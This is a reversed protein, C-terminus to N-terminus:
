KKVMKKTMVLKGDTLLSYTYIGSELNQGYVTLMGNGRENITVENIIRGNMDYFMLKANTIDQPIHYNIVTSEAFPNPVNQDLVIAKLNELTVTQTNNLPRNQSNGNGANNSCLGFNDLCAEIASLRTELTHIVSDKQSLISQQENFGAILLPILEQYNLSKYNVTPSTQNGLTDYQALMTSKVVLNPLVQEVEQAVMGIHQKTDFSFQPYAASDLYFTKPKLQTIVETASEVVQLDKKFQQDSAVVTGNTSSIQGTVHLNGEFYGAWTSGSPGFARGRVGISSTNGGLAQGFVGINTGSTGRDANGSIGIYDSMGSDVFSRAFSALGTITQNSNAEMRIRAGTYPNVGDNSTTFVDLGYLIAINGPSNSIDNHIQIAQEGTTRQAQITLKRNDTFTLMEDGATNELRLVNAWNSGNPNAINRVNLMANSNEGIGIRGYGTFRLFQGNMDVTTNRILTGGLEVAGTGSTTTNLGNQAAVTGGGGGTVTGWTGDGKLVQNVNGTFPLTHLTGNAEHTVIGTNTGVTLARIRGNGNVDLVQTPANTNIGVFRNAANNRPNIFLDGNATTTIDTFLGQAANNNYTHTLRLQPFNANNQSVELWAHPLNFTNAGTPGYAEGVGTLGIRDIFFKGTVNDTASTGNNTQLQLYGSRQNNDQMSGCLRATPYEAGGGPLDNDYNALEVYANCFQSLTTRSSRIKIGTSSVQNFGNRFEAVVSNNITNVSQVSGVVMFRTGTSLVNGVGDTAGVRVLGDPIGAQTSHIRMRENLGNTNFRMAGNQTTQLVAENSNSPIFLSFKETTNTATTGTFMQWQNIVSQNGDTRFLLGSTAPNPALLFQNIHLKANIDGNVLFNGVGIKEVSANTRGASMPPIPNWQAKAINPIIALLTMIFKLKIKKM